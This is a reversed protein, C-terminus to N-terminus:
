RAKICIRAINPYLDSFLSKKKKIPPENVAQKSGKGMKRKLWQALQIVPSMSQNPDKPPSIFWYALLVCFTMALIYSFALTVTITVPLSYIYEYTSGQLGILMPYFAAITTGTAILIPFSLQNAGKLAADFNSMGEAQLRRTQDCIQVANDVLMGLAIIMAALSIQEMQV